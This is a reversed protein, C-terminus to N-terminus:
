LPFLCAVEQNPNATLQSETTAPGLADTTETSAPASTATTESAAAATTPTAAGTTMTSSGECGVLLEGLGGIALAAGALGAYRLFQRRSAAGETSDETAEDSKPTDDENKHMGKTRGKPNTPSQTVNSQSEVDVVVIGTKQGTEVRLYADRIQEVPYRRDIVAGFQGEELHASM